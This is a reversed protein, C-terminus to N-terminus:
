IHLLRVFIWLFSWEKLCSIMKWVSHMLIVKCTNMLAKTCCPSSFGECWQSTSPPANSPEDVRSWPAPSNCPYSWTAQSCWAAKFSFHTSHRSSLKSITSRNITRIITSIRRNRTFQNIKIHMPVISKLTFKLVLDNLRLYTVNIIILSQHGGITVILIKMSVM